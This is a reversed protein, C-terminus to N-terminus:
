GQGSGIGFVGFERSLGPYGSCDDQCHCDVLFPGHVRDLHCTAQSRPKIVVSDRRNLCPTKSGRHSITIGHSHLHRHFYGEFRVSASFAGPCRMPVIRGLLTTTFDGYRENLTLSHFRRIAGVVESVRYQDSRSGIFESRPTTKIPRTTPAIRMAIMLPLRAACGTSRLAVGALRLMSVAKTGSTQAATDPAVKSNTM